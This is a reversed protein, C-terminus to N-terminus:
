PKSDLQLQARLATNEAQLDAITQNEARTKARGVVLKAGRTRARRIDDQHLATWAAVASYLWLPTKRDSFGIPKPFDPFRRRFTEVIAGGAFGWGQGIYSAPVPPDFVIPDEATAPGATPESVAVVALKPRNRLENNWHIIKWMGQLGGPRLTGRAHWDLHNRLTTRFDERGVWLWDTNVDIVAQSVLRDHTWQPPIKEDRFGPTTRHTKIKTM